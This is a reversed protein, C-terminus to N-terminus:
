FHEITEIRCAVASRSDRLDLILDAAVVPHGEFVDLTLASRPPDDCWSLDRHVEASLQGVARQWLNPLRKAAPVVGGDHVRDLADRALECVLAFEVCRDLRQRETELSVPEGGRRRRLSNGSPDVLARRNM